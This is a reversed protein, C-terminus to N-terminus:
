LEDEIDKGAAAAAAAAEAEADPEPTSAAVPKPAKRGAAQRVAEEAEPDSLVPTGAPLAKENDLAGHVRKLVGAHAKHLRGIEEATFDFTDGAKVTIIQQKGDEAERSFKVTHKAIRLAM